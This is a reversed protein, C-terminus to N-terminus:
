WRAEFNRITDGDKIFVFPGWIAQTQELPNYEVKIKM